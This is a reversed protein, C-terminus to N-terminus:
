RLVQACVDVERLHPYQRYELSELFEAIKFILIHEPREVHADTQRNDHPFFEHLLCFGVYLRETNLCILHPSNCFSTFCNLKGALEVPLLISVSRSVLKSKRPFFFTPFTRSM